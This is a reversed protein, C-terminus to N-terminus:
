PFLLTFETQVASALVMGTVIVPSQMEAHDHLVPFLFLTMVRSIFHVHVSVRGWGIWDLLGARLYFGM